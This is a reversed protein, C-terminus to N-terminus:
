QPRQHRQGHYQRTVVRNTPCSIDHQTQAPERRSTSNSSHGITSGMRWCRRLSPPHMYWREGELAWAAMGTSALVAVQDEGPFKDVLFAIVQKLLFTKGTGAGM